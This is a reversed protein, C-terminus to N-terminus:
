NEPHALSKKLKEINFKSIDLKEEEITQIFERFRDNINNYALELEELSSFNTTYAGLAIELDSWYKDDTSLTEKLHEKLKKVHENDGSSDLALYYDYFDKYRTKLGINIDFGNGILYVINM